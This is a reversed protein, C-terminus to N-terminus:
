PFYCGALLIRMPTVVDPTELLAGAAMREGDDCPFVYDNIFCQQALVSAFQLAPGILAGRALERLMAGRLLTLFRELPVDMNPAATLLAGLLADDALPAFGTGGLLQALPMPNPWQADARAVLPGLV